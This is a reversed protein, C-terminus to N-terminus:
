GLRLPMAMSLPRAPHEGAAARPFFTTTGLCSRDPKSQPMGRGKDSNAPNQDGAGLPLGIVGIPVLVPEEARHPTAEGATQGRRGSSRSLVKNSAM